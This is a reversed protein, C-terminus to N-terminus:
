LNVGRQFNVVVAQGLALGGDNTPTQRHFHVTFGEKELGDRVLDLLIQNQWVGGSLAVEGLGTREGVRRSVEVAMAAVTRHFRAGIVGPPENRRVDEVVDAMTPKLSLVTDGNREDIDFPYPKTKSLYEGSLTELEIAAQAEYTVDNRVGALSAVADFLRGMSSTMPTNLNGEVQQRVITLAQGELGRVFPLDDVPLGLAFAYGIAIRWPHRIAADGGPLPLYELHAAREFGAYDAVLVEGGWIAGDTGYGTGDFSLGIVKHNELGNDAMCAAIHAHHHQVAVPRLGSESRQAWRTTFYGPHLDCALRKPQVRFLRSLHEVGQEFSAYTEANEMDGIHQSLFAYRDRTLCFTNKLDGGVALTPQTEFPLQVPYPAYGRSRRLYVASPSRGAESKGHKTNWPRGDARVVSDDCRIHIGRDHLLFADALPALRDLADQNDTAIPEESFNGSTMVLVPPVPEAELLPDRQNIILHHLPTYPLMVGLTAVGPAVGEAVGPSGSDKVPKKTLLLIPKERGNLIAREADNIECIMAVIGVDAAMLAFPKGQRGKRRRLEDVADPNTADCALHFGGLGKIAVIKGERLLRRTELIAARNVTLASSGGRVLWVNPGCDPCAVPQAHFRRDLPDDYERRCDACMPFDAMTTKPRDYPLDKIITFRPGCNTCNIFPYLYRRDKPDFLERECDACIAVDASVPQFAGAISESERIEFRTFGDDRSEEVRISDIRALPPAENSLSEIFSQVPGPKGAVVVEVGASTNIVWGRLALRTALGYVFPRFGVGQVVGTVFIRKTEM